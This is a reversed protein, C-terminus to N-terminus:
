HCCALWQGLMEFGPGLFILTEAWGESMAIGGREREDAYYPAPTPKLSACGGCLLMMAALVAVWQRQRQKNAFMDSLHEGFSTGCGPM